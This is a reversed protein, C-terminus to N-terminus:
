KIEKLRLGGERRGRKGYCKRGKGKNLDATEWKNNGMGM